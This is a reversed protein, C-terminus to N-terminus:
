RIAVQDVLKYTIREYLKVQEFGANKILATNEPTLVDALKREKTASSTSECFYVVLTTKGDENGLEFKFKCDYSRLGAAERIRDRLDFQKNLVEVVQKREEYKAREQESMGCGMLVFLLIFFPFLNRVLLKM